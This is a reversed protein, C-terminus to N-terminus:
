SEQMEKIKREEIEDLSKNTENIIKQAEELLHFKEDESIEKKEFDHKIEQVVEERLKRVNVRAEEKKEKILKVLEEKREKSLPPLFIKIQRGNINPTLALPSLTIAKSIAEVLSEDWPEVMIINPPSISISAINKLPSSKGYCMVKIDEVLAPAPRASRFPAITKQFEQTAEELIEKFAKIRTLPM